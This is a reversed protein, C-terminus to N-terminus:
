TVVFGISVWNTPLNLCPLYSSFTGQIKSAMAAIVKCSCIRKHRSSLKGAWAVMKIGALWITALISSPSCPESHQLATCGPMPGRLGPTPTCIPSCCLSCEDDLLPRICTGKDWAIANVPLRSAILPRASPLLMDQLRAHKWPSRVHATTSPLHKKCTAIFSAPPVAM